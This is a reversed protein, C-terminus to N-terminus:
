VIKDEIGRMRLGQMELGSDSLQPMAVLRGYRERNCEVSRYEVAVVM